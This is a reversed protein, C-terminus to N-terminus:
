EAHGMMWERVAWRVQKSSDDGPFRTRAWRQQYYQYLRVPDCKLNGSAAGGRPQRASGTAMAMAAPTIFSTTPKSLPILGTKTMRAAPPRPEELSSMSQSRSLGSSDDVNVRLLVDSSASSSTVSMSSASKSEKEIVDVVKRRRRRVRALDVADADAEDEDCETAPRHSSSSSYASSTSSSRRRISREEDYKKCRQKKEEYKVLRRLDVVFEDLQEDTVNGYGLDLLHRRVDSKSFRLSM